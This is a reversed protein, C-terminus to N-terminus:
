NLFIPMVYAAACNVFVVSDYRRAVATLLEVRVVDNFDDSAVNFRRVADVFTVGLTTIHRRHEFIDAGNM